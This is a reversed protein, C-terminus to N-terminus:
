PNSPELIAKRAWALSTEEEPTLEIARGDRVFFEFGNLDNEGKFAVYTTRIYKREWNREQAYAVLGLEDLERTFPKWSCDRLVNRSFAVFPYPSGGWFPVRASREKTVLYFPSTPHIGVTSTAPETISLESWFGEEIFDNAGVMCSWDPNEKKLVNLSDNYKKRLAPSGGSLTCVPGQPVERYFTTDNLYPDAFKRSLDKESGCFFVNYPLDSLRGFVPKVTFGSGGRLHFPVVIGISYM